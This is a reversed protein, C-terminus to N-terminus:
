EIVWNLLCSKLMIIIHKMQCSMINHSMVKGFSNIDTIHVNFNYYILIHLQHATHIM